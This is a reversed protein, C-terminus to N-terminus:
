RSGAHELALKLARDLQNYFFSTAASLPYRGQGILGPLGECDATTAAPQRALNSSTGRCLGSDRLVRGQYAVVKPVLGRNPRGAKVWADLHGIGWNYAAIADPWDRYRRYLQALYARGIQRNQDIDFRDGGGVDTAAAESVQMPGQPGTPDARWMRQDAGRSSEADDVAVAVRDLSSVANVSAAGRHVKRKAALSPSVVVLSLLLAIAMARFSYM